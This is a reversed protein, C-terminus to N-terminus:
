HAYKGLIMKALDAVSNLDESPEETETIEQRSRLPEYTGDDLNITFEIDKLEPQLARLKTYAAEHADECRQIEKQTASRLDELLEMQLSDLRAKVTKFAEAAEQIVHFPTKLPTIVKKCHEFAIPNLKKKM